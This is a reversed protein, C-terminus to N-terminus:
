QLIRYYGNSGPDQHGWNTATATVVFQTGIQWHPPTLSASHQVTVTRGPELDVATLQYGDEADVVVEIRTPAPATTTSSSTTSSSTTSSSATTSSSTTTTSTTTDEPTVHATLTVVDDYLRREVNILAGGATMRPFMQVPSLTATWVGLANTTVDIELHGYHKGGSQLVGGSWVEPADTHALFAQQPNSVRADPGRLGDGAVGYDFFHLDYTNTGGDPRIENGNVVSRETMEDHGCFVADVGYQHMVTTLVKAPSGLQNDGTVASGHVGASYPMHHFAVFTFRSRQQADALQQEVWQYQVTGPNFDPAHCGTSAFLRSSTDQPTAADNGNCTDLVIITVPGYDVRYFREQQPPTGVGNPPNDFYTLFKGVSQESAPQNYGQATGNGRTGPYYEHNGLAALIPIGGALDNFAGANHRWFEDWDRQEGAAEVLDGAIILFDPARAKIAATNSAYGTTQSLLYTRSGGAPNDWGVHVTSEPETESDAYMAFRIPVETAPATRFSNAYTSSGQTVAYAYRTWATLNTLRQQHLWPLPRNGNSRAVETTHYDLNTALVGASHVLTTPGGPASYSLTATSNSEALWLITMATPAPNQLYPTVRFETASATAPLCLGALGCAWLDVILRIDRRRRLNEPACVSPITSRMVRYDIM